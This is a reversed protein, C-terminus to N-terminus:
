RRAETVTKIAGQLAYVVIPNCKPLFDAAKHANLTYPNVIYIKGDFGEYITYEAGHYIVDIYNKGSGNKYISTCGGLHANVIQANEGLHCRGSITSNKVIAQEAVYVEECVTSDTIIAKGAVIASGCVVSEGRVVADDSIRCRDLAMSNPYVWCSDHRSLNESVEIYGGIDGAYVDGFDETAVIQRLVHTGYTEIKDTFDYKKM